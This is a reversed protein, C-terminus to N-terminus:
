KDSKEKSEKPKKKGDTINKVAEKVVERYEEPVMKDEVIKNLFPVAASATQEMEGLAWACMGM